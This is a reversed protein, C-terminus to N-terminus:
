LAGQNQSKEQLNIIVLLPDPWLTGPKLYSVQLRPILCSHKYIKNQKQTDTRWIRQEEDQGVAGEVERERERATPDSTLREVFHKLHNNKHFFPKVWNKSSLQAIIAM